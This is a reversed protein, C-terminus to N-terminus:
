QRADEQELYDGQNRALLVLIARNVPIYLFYRIFFIVETGGGYVDLVLSSDANSIFFDGEPFDSM